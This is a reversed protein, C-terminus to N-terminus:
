RIPQIRSPGPSNVTPILPETKGLVSETLSDEFLHRALSFAYWQLAGRGMMFAATERADLISLGRLDLSRRRRSSGTTTATATAGTGTATSSTTTSTPCSYPSDSGQPDDRKGFLDPHNARAALEQRTVQKTNVRSQPKPNPAESALTTAVLASCITALLTFRM